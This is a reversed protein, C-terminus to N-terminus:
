IIYATLVGVISDHTCIYLCIHHCFPVCIICSFVLYSGRLNFFFVSSFLVRYREADQVAFAILWLVPNPVFPTVRQELHVLKTIQLSMPYPLTFTFLSPLLSPSNYTTSLRVNGQVNCALFYNLLLHHRKKPLVVSGVYVAVATGIEVLCRCICNAYILYLCLLM